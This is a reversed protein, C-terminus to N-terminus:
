DRFRIQLQDQDDYTYLASFLNSDKETKLVKPLLQYLDEVLPLAFVKDMPIWELVGEQSDRLEGLQYVGRYVFILIGPNERTDITITGCLWLDALKLGTEEQLERKAASLLDEGREVHGGIGNYQNAWLRKYPAGKLLLIRDESTLFILTRPVLTYRNTTHGQDSVPM